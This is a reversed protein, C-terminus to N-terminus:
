KGKSREHHDYIAGGAGGAVAGIAAGPGGGVLAGIAAGGAAGGGVRLITNRKRHQRRVVVRRNPTSYTTVTRTRVPQAAGASPILTSFAMAAFIAVRNKM